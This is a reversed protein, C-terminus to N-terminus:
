LKGVANKRAFSRAAEKVAEEGMEGFIDIGWSYPAATRGQRELSDLRKIVSEPLTYDLISRM